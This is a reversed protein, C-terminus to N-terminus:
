RGGNSPFGILDRHKITAAYGESALDEALLNVFTVSRHQGGTCGISVLLQSRAEKVCQNIVFVIMDKIKVFYDRSEEFGMVYERVEVDNGSLPRLKEIYYPNPLFRLDFVMDSDLPIGRKFGFSMLTINVRKSNFEGELFEIIATKLQSHNMRSTNIIYGADNRINALIDRERDICNEIIDFPDLPHTRRAEKFRKILVDKDAELYLIRCTVGQKEATQVASKFNDFFKGGRIDMVLAVKGLEDSNRLALDAFANILESPLNDVCYYGLDELVKTAQTKGAGSLGTLILFEM